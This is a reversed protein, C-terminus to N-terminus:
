RRSERLYKLILDAAQRTGGRRADIYNDAADQIETRSRSNKVSAVLLDVAERWDGAVRLLGEGIIEPGVWHFNDWHPGIVPIVGCQLPELFNQGGLQALSGGVFAAQASAYADALEGFRDWLIVSGAEAASTLRSRFQWRLGSEDLKSRWDDLREMHRPFLGVVAGPLNGLLAHIMRVVDQEEKKRISGLAVFQSSASLCDVMSGRSAESFDPGIRDFKMNPMMSVSSDPFLKIFRAADDSSIALIEDPTLQQWLGPLLRYRNLSRPTLRGNILLIRCGAQKLAQLHGPWIETEILVMVVPKVADAVRRMIRPRDFPFYCSDIAVPKQASNTGSLSKEIVNIGQRTNTTLLISAGETAHILKALEVAITSEGASAAQIWIDAPGPPPDALRQMFGDALRQHRRLLPMAPAWFQDYLWAATKFIATTM